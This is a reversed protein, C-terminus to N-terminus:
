YIIGKLAMTLPFITDIFCSNTGIVRKPLKKSIIRPSFLIIM